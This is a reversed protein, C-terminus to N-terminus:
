GDRIESFFEIIGGPIDETPPAGHTADEMWVVEMSPTTAAMEEVVEPVVLTDATGAYHRIPCTIEATNALPDKATKVSAYTPAGGYADEIDTTIQAGGRDNDHIDVHSPAGYTTVIGAVNEPYERAYNCALLFGMSTAFIYLPGAAVRLEAGAGQLYTKGEDLRSVATDNGFHTFSGWDATFVVYRENVVRVWNPHGNAVAFNIAQGGYGGLFIFPYDSEPKALRRGFVVDREGTHYRGVGTSGWM